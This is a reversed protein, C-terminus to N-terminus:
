KKFYINHLLIEVAKVIFLVMYTKYSHITWAYCDLHCNKNLDHGLSIPVKVNMRDWVFAHENCQQGYSHSENGLYCLNEEHDRHLPLTTM